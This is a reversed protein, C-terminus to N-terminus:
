GRKRERLVTLPLSYPLSGTCRFVKVSNVNSFFVLANEPQISILIRFRPLINNMLQSCVVEATEAMTPFVELWGSFTDVM